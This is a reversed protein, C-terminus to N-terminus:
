ATILKDINCGPEVPMTTYVPIIEQEIFDIFKKMEAEWDNHAVEAAERAVAAAWEAAERAVVAAAWEAAMASMKAVETAAEASRVALWSWASSKAPETAKETAYAAFLEARKV